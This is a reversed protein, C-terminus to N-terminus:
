DENTLDDKVPLSALVELLIGIVVAPKLAILNNVNMKKAAAHLNKDIM